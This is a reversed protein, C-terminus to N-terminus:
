NHGPAASCPFCHPCLGGGRGSKHTFFTGIKQTLTGWKFFWFPIEQISNNQQFSFAMKLHCETLGNGANYSNMNEFMKTRSTFPM